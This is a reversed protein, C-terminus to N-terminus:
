NGVGIFASLNQYLRQLIQIAGTSILERRIHPLPHSIPSLFFLNQVYQAFLNIFLFSISILYQRFLTIHYM